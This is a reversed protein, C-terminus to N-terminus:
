FFQCIFFAIILINTERNLKLYNGNRKDDSECAKQKAMINSWNGISEENWEFNMNQKDALENIVSKKRIEKVASLTKQNAAKNICAANSLIPVVNQQVSLDCETEATIIPEICLETFKNAEIVDGASSAVMGDFTLQSNEESDINDNSLESDYVVTEHSQEEFHVPGDDDISVPLIEPMSPINM